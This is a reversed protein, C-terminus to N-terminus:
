LQLRHPSSGFPSRRSICSRLLHLSSQLGNKLSVKIITRDAPPKGKHLWHERNFWTLNKSQKDYFGLLRYKGEVMQEIQTWAIRIM